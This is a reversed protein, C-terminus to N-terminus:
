ELIADKLKEEMSEGPASYYRRNESIMMMTLINVHMCDDM